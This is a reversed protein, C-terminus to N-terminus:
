LQWEPDTTGDGQEAVWDFNPPNFLYNTQFEGLAQDRNKLIKVV